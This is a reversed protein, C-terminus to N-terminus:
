LTYEADPRDDADPLPLGMPIHAPYNSIGWSSPADEDDKDPDAM